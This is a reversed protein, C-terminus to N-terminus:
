PDLRVHRVRRSSEVISQWAALLATARTPLDFTRAVARRAEDGVRRRLTPNSAAQTVGEALRDPAGPPVLWASEGHHVIETTGGVDTAVIALGSAAAELLVRGLPEQHAPHILLDAGQLLCPVDDRYGLRHLRDALGHQAFAEIFDREFAVSEPKKSYREGAILFHASPTQRVIGPAARALIDLGKRLGIQGITLALFADEPLGLERLLEVRPQSSAPPQFEDLDVGNYLVQLKDASCGHALYWDRVANSVAFLRANCTLDRLAAQSISLMDRLHSTCPIPLSEALAGTLRGMSLSNAHLLDPRLAAVAANLEDLVEARPRRAGQADRVDFARSEIGARLLSDRWRGAAPCLVVPDVQGGLARLAALLSREGGNITGFECVIAVRLM